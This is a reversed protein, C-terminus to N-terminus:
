VRVLEIELNKKLLEIFESEKEISINCGAANAHGGVEGGVVEVIPELFKHLDRGNNGVIRVSVKIKDEVYSLVIVITGVEYTNSSSLISAITGAMVDKIEEGGNIIVYGNGQIKEVNTAFKLGAILGQKYKAHISEAKKRAKSIEMCFQLAVGSEGFRSCANVIASLERADELKNFLKILFIDGLIGEENIESNRLIISTVLRQMEDDNLEIISPYKGNIPQLGSERLLELVGKINGTVNPIYPNSCFELTRNLPRTSPYILLGRKRKIEGDNLIGNNLKDIESELRDGIMGLIALKAFERNRSNIEKCFLYTLGSASIKQEDFLESNIVYINEPVEGIKHHDIVFVNEFELQSIYDLLSSALDLFLILKDKPLTDIFKKDLSKIIKVSFKKDLRKLSNIIISASTIGDTDFHSVVYVEKDKSKELFENARRKILELIKEGM